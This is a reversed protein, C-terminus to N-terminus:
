RTLVVDLYTVSRRVFSPRLHHSDSYIARGDAEVIPCSADDCLYEIPDIVIVGTRTAISRLRDMLKGTQIPIAARPLDRVIQRPKLGPIRRPLLANPSLFQSHPSSLVLYIRKGSTRLMALEREFLGFVSDVHPSSAGITTRTKDDALHFPLSDFYGEWFASIVVTKVEPRLLENVVESHFRDCRWPAGDWSIGVRNVGPWPPCGGYSYFVVKPLRNSRRKALEEFRPRYMVAHSDGIIAVVNTSDGKLASGAVRGSEDFYGGPGVDVQVGVVHDWRFALRPRIISRYMLLGIMGVLILGGFLLRASRRKRAGFRVPREIILYTAASLLISVAIVSLRGSKSLTKENVLRAVVFLPWHWLYLSYSILGIGVLARNSLVYRNILANEGAMILFVTGMVPLLALWGPWVTQADVTQIALVLLVLGGVSLAHATAAPLDAEDSTRCALQWWCLLGGSLIEWFRTVPLYFAATGAHNAVARINWAFSVGIIMAATVAISWRRKWAVILVLPWVLYFQEEVALSWLHLLPKDRSDFYGAEKWLLLNSVFGSSGLMHKGLQVFEPPFLVLWGIVAVVALVVILAPFIRNIRRTYFEAFTFTGKQLARLIIGTILYGSIVFFVDVGVFGGRFASFEAHFGVIALVAVARLGDIDPRYPAAQIPDTM